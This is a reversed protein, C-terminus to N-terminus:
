FTENLSSAAETTHLAALKFTAEIANAKIDARERPKTSEIVNFTPDFISSTSATLLDSRSTSKIQPKYM